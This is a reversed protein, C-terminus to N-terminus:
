RIRFTDSVFYSPCLHYVYGLACLVHQRLFCVFPMVDFADCSFHRALESEFFDARWHKLMGFKEKASHTFGGVDHRLFHVSKVVLASSAHRKAGFARCANRTAKDFVTQMLTNHRHFRIIDCANEAILFRLVASKAFVMLESHFAVSAIRRGCVRFDNRKNRSEQSSDSKFFEFEVYVADTTGLTARFVVLSQFLVYACIQVKHATLALRSKVFIRKTNEVALFFLAFFDHLISRSYRIIKAVIAFRM